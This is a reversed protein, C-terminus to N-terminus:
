FKDLTFNPGYSTMLVTACLRIQTMSHHNLLLTLVTRVTELTDQYFHFLHAYKWCHCIFIQPLWCLMGLSPKRHELWYAHLLLSSGGILNSRTFTFIKMFITSERLM